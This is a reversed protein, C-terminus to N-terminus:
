IALYPYCIASFCSSIITIERPSSSSRQDTAQIMALAPDGRLVLHGLGILGISDNEALGLPRRTGASRPPDPCYGEIM